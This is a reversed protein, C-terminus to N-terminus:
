AGKPPWQILGKTDVRPTVGIAKFKQITPEDAVIGDWNWDECKRCAMANNWPRVLRGDYIHESFKFSVGCLFCKPDM